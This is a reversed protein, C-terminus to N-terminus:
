PRRAAAQPTSRSRLWGILDAMVQDKENPKMRGHLLGLKYEPFVEKSLKEHEETAAKLNDMKESEEILPYIIFAQRGEQIQGRVLTYAREREQPRLVHTGIPQRGSPMEEIVSLDLDGYITLARLRDFEKQLLELPANKSLRYFGKAISFVKM